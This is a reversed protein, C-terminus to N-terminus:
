DWGGQASGRVHPRSRAIRRLGVHYKRRTLELLCGCARDPSTKCHSTKLTSMQPRLISFNFPCYSLGRGFRPALESASASGQGPTLQMPPRGAGEPRHASERPAAGPGATQAWRAGVRVIAASDRVLGLRAPALSSPLPPSPPGRARWPRAREKRMAAIAVTTAPLVSIPNTAALRLVPSSSRPRRRLALSM